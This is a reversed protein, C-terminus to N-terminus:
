SKWGRARETAEAERRQYEGLVHKLALAADYANAGAAEIAALAPDGDFFELDPDFEAWDMEDNMLRSHVDLQDQLYCRAHGIARMAERSSPWHAEMVERLIAAAQGAKPPATVAAATAATM